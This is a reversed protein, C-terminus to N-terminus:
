TDLFEAVRLYRVPNAIGLAQEVVDGARRLWNDATLVVDGDAAYLVNTMDPWDNTLKKGSEPPRINLGLRHDWIQTVCLMYLVQMTFMRNLHPNRRASSVLAPEDLLTSRKGGNSIGDAIVWSQHALSYSHRMEGLPDDLKEVGSAAFAKRASPSRELMRSKFELSGEKMRTAEAILGDQEDSLDNIWSLRRRLSEDEEPAYFPQYRSVCEGCASALHEMVEAPQIGFRLPFTSLHRIWPVRRALIVEGIVFPNLVISDFGAPIERVLRFFESTQNADLILRPKRRGRRLSGGTLKKEFAQAAVQSWNTSAGFEDMRVKLQDPVSITMRTSM